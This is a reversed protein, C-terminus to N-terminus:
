LLLGSSKLIIRGYDVYILSWFKRSKILFVRWVQWLWIKLTVLKSDYSNMKQVSALFIM